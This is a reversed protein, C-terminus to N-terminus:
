DTEIVANAVTPSEVSPPTWARRMGSPNPGEGASASLALAM